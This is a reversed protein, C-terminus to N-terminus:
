LIRNQVQFSQTLSSLTGIGLESQHEIAECKFRITEMEKRLALLNESSIVYKPIPCFAACDILLKLLNKQQQIPCFADIDILLKLENKATVCITIIIFLNKRKFVM